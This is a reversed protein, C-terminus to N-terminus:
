FVQKALDDVSAYSISNGAGYRPKLTRRSEIVQKSANAGLSTTDTHFNSDRKRDCM